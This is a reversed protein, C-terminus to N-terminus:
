AQGDEGSGRILDADQERTGAEDGVPRVPDGEEFGCVGRYDCYECPRYPGGQVPCAEVRGEALLSAMDAIKKEVLLRLRELDLASIVASRAEVTEKATLKAPIFAGKGQAEMARIVDPDELVLGRMRYQERRRRELEEPSVDRGSQVYGGLSPMYLIGAPKLGALDERGNQCVSFLYILMQMNLGHGVDGLSFSKRGSKYDVVRVYGGQELRAIDVRDIIGEARVSLGEPTVLKVPEVRSGTQVPMEFYTPIFLSQALEEAIRLLLAEIPEALRDFLYASRKGLVAGDVARASVYSEISARIQGRLEAREMKLLDVGSTLMHELIWHILSGAELASPEAKRRARIGMPGSMLFSFPCSYYREIRSPSLRMDRGFVALSVAKDQIQHVPKQAASRIREVLAGGGNQRLLTELSARRPTNDHWCGSLADAATPLNVVTDDSHEGCLRADPFMAKAQTFLVSPLLAEGAASHQPYSIYVRRSAATLANYGFLRERALLHDADWIM